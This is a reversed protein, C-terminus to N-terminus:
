NIWDEVLHPSTNYLKKLLDFNPFDHAIFYKIPITIM